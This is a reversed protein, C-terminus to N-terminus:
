ALAEQTARDLDLTDPTSTRGAAADGYTKAFWAVTLPLGDALDVTPEWDLTEKARTIDPQRQQPDDAPLPLYQVSQTPDILATVRDALESVPIEHPNGINIPGTVGHDTAMMRILAEVTDDM